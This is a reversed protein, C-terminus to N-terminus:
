LGSTELISCTCSLIIHFRSSHHWDINPRTNSKPQSLFKGVMCSVFSMLFFSFMFFFFNGNSTKVSPTMYHRLKEAKTVMKVEPLISTLNVLPHDVIFWGTLLVLPLFSYISVRSQYSLPISIEEYKSLFFSLSTEFSFEYM